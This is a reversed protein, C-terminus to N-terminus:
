SEGVREFGKANEITRAIAASFEAESRSGTLTLTGNFVFHPMKSIGRSKAQQSQRETLEREVPDRVLARAEEQTFGHRSAIDALVEADAINRADLFYAEFLAASLRHQTGRERALRVLTQAAQTPYAYRQRSLDLDIGLARAESEAPAWAPYPDIIGYKSRMVDTIVVGEQPCDPMLFVPYHTIDVLLGPFQEALVKDLRRHGILCWPCSIESYLDISIEAM